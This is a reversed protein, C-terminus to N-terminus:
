DTQECLFPSQNGGSHYAYTEGGVSLSILLGETLVQAYMMDPQPCGLSADPWTVASVEDVAIQDAPVGLRQALDDVALATMQAAYEDQGQPVAPEESVTEQPMVGEEENHVPECPAASAGEGTIVMGPVICNEDDAGWDLPQVTTVAVGAEVSVGASEAPAPTDASTGESTNATQSVSQEPAPTAADPATVPVPGCAAIWFLSVSLLLPFIAKGNMNNEKVVNLLNLFNLRTRFAGITSGKCGKSGQVAGEGM